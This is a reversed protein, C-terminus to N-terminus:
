LHPFIMQAIHAGLNIPEGMDSVVKEVLVVPAHRLFPDAELLYLIVLLDPNNQYREFGSAGTLSEDGPTKHRQCASNSAGVGVV